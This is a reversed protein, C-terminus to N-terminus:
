PAPVQTPDQELSHSTPATNERTVPWQGLLQAFKTYTTGSQAEQLLHLAMEAQERPQIKQLALCQSSKPFLALVSQTELSPM